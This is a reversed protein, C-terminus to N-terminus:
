KMARRVSTNRNPQAKPESPKEQNPAPKTTPENDSNNDGDYHNHERVSEEEHGSDDFVLVSSPKVQTPAPKAPEAPAPAPTAEPAQEKKDERNKLKRELRNLTVAEDDNNIVPVTQEMNPLAATDGRNMRTNDMRNARSTRNAHNARNTSTTARRAARNQYQHNLNMGYRGANSHSNTNPQTSQVVPASVAPAPTIQPREAAIGTHTTNRTNHTNRTHTTNRTNHTNRTHTTNRTNHTNGTHTTNRTNHTNGVATNRTNHTSRTATNRTSQTNQMDTTVGRDFGSDLAQARHNNNNNYRFTNGIRGQPRGFNVSRNPTSHQTNRTNRTNHASSNGTAMDGVGETINRATSGIGRSIRNIGRTVGRNSNRNLGNYYDSSDAYNREPWIGRHDYTDARRNVADAVRQGNRNGQNTEPLNSSCGTVAIMGAVTGAVLIRRWNM